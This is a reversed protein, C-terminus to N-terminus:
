PAAGSQGSSSAFASFVRYTDAGDRNFLPTGYNVRKSSKDGSRAHPRWAPTRSGVPWAMALSDVTVKWSGDGQKAWVTVYKGLTVMPTGDQEVTLEFTGITHGVDGAEAVEASTAQWELNFGPMSSLQEWTTRIAEGRALPAGFPM